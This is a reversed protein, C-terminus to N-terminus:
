NLPHPPPLPPPLPHRASFLSSAGTAPWGFRTASPMRLRSFTRARSSRARRRPLFPPCMECRILSQVHPHSRVARPPRHDWLSPLRSFTTAQRCGPALRQHRRTESAQICFVAAKDEPAPGHTLSRTDLRNRSVSLFLLVDVHSQKEERWPATAFRYECLSSRARVRFDVQLIRPSERLRRLQPSSM